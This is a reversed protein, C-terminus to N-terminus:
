LSFNFNIFGSARVPHGDRTFPRFKWKKIADRAASLLLTPGSTKLVEAVDGTADVIIEVRVIGSTRMNRAAPPYVPTVQKLAYGALSGLEVTAIEPAAQPQVTGRAADNAATGVVRVPKEAVKPQMQAFSNGPPNNTTENEPKTESIPAADKEAESNSDAPKAPPVRKEAEDAKPESNEVPTEAVASLIISHSNVLLERTDAMEDRWRRTDYDDRGLSGRAAVAEELLPMMVASRGKEGSLERAQSIVKELLGRMQEADNLAELPLNRDSVSIGLSRFREIQNRAGRVIQGAVATYLEASFANNSKYSKFSSELFDSAKKYEGQELYGNILLVAAVSNVSPDSSERRVNELEYIAAAYNRVALYAKARSLRDRMVEEVTPAAPVPSEAAQPVATARERPTQALAQGAAAPLILMLVVLIRKLKFSMKDRGSSGTEENNGLGAM